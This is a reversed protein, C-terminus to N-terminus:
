HVSLVLGEETLEVVTILPEGLESIQLRVLVLKM